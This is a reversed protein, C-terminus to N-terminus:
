RRGQRGRGTMALSLEALDKKPELLGRGIVAAGVASTASAAACTVPLGTIGAVIGPTVTSAAAAGTMVLRKAKIGAMDLYRSLERALGEVTARLLHQKTHALTLGAIEAPGNAVLLPRVRLGDCGPPVSRMLEDLDGRLGTVGLVWKVASGGNVMSMLQGYLGDVVHTSVCAQPIVPPRLRDTTALLVWATGTGLMLDGPRVAGCGLTAAYQDHVAASVPIGAPLGTLKAAQRTLGGAPTRASLLAPLQADTLGVLKMVDPDTGRRWPNYLMCIALSTADHAPRGCLRGVIQDGVFGVNHIRHSRRLRLLQGVAVGSLGHGIHKSFWASGLQKTLRDDEPKGRQDMWSVVRGVTQGTPSLLQLAGGQSSIGVAAVRRGNGARRIAAITARWIQNLDQEVLGGPGHVVDVPASGEGVIRGGPTVLLAKINTTGLDLGLILPESKLTTPVWCHRRTACSPAPM